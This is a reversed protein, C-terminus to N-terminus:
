FPRRSLEVQEWKCGLEEKDCRRAMAKKNTEKHLTLRELWFALFNDIKTVTKDESNLATETVYHSNWLYLNFSHLLRVWVVFLNLSEKQEQM